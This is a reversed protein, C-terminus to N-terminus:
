LAVLKLVLEHTKYNQLNSIWNLKMGVCVFNFKKLYLLISKLIEQLLFYNYILRIFIYLWLVQM